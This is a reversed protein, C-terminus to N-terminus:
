RLLDSFKRKVLKCEGDKSQFVMEYDNWGNRRKLQFILRIMMRVADFYPLCKGFIQCEETHPCGYIM